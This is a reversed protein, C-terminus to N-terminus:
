LLNKNFSLYIKSVKREQNLELTWRARFNTAKSPFRICRIEQTWWEPEAPEPPFNPEDNSDPQEESYELRLEITRREPPSPPRNLIDPDKIKTM